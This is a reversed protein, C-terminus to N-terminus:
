PAQILLATYLCVWAPFSHRCAQCKTLLCINTTVSHLYHHKRCRWAGGQCLLPPPWPSTVTIYSRRGDTGPQPYFPQVSLWRTMSGSHFAIQDGWMGCLAVVPGIEQGSFHLHEMRYRSCQFRRSRKIRATQLHPLATSRFTVTEAETKVEQNLSVSQISTVFHWSNIQEVKRINLHNWVHDSRTHRSSIERKILCLSCVRAQDRLLSCWVERVHRCIALRFVAAASALM